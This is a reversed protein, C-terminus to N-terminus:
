ETIPVFAPPQEALADNATATLAVGLTDIVEDAETIQAPADTVKFAVPAVLKKHFLPAIEADIATLGDTVVVYLTVPVFAM